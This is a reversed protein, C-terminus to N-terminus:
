QKWLKEQTLRDATAWFLGHASSAYKQPGMRSGEVVKGGVGLCEYSKKTPLCFSKKKVKLVSLLQFQIKIKTYSIGTNQHLNSWTEATVFTTKPRSPQSLGHEGSNRCRSRSFAFIVEPARLKAARLPGARTIDLLSFGHRSWEEPLKHLLSWSLTIKTQCLVDGKHWQVVLVM